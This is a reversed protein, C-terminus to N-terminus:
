DMLGKMVHVVMKEHALDVELICEKIAPLLVEKGSEMKVVYVDNAGTQLVDNLVGLKNGSDEYVDLGILDCIYNEDDGLPLAEDRPILIDFRTYKEVDNINDIDQFKLIVLNKFYKVSKISLVHEEKGNSLTVEKLLEFRKVDDTTPYVKVEGAIGHPKIISGIRLYDKM